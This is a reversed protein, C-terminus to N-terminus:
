RERESSRVFDIFEQGYVYGLRGVYYVKLGDRRYARLAGESLGFRREMEKFSVLEDPRIAGYEAM